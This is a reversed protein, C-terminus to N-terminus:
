ITLILRDMDVFYKGKQEARKEPATSFSRFVPGWESDSRLRLTPSRGTLARFLDLRLSRTSAGGDVEDLGEKLLSTGVDPPEYDASTGSVSRRRLQTAYTRGACESAVASMIRACELRHCKHHADSRPARPRNRAGQM